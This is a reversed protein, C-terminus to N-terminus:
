LDKDIRKLQEEDTGKFEFRNKEVRQGIEQFVLASVINFLIMAICVALYVYILVQITM